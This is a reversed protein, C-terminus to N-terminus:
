NCISNTWNRCNKPVCSTGNQLELEPRCLQCQKTALSYDLCGTVFLLCQGGYVILQQQCQICRDGETTECGEIVVKRCNNNANDLVYGKKCSQCKYNSSNECNPEMCDRNSSLLYTKTCVLCSGNLDAQLCLDNVKICTGNLYYRDNCQVCKNDTYARCNADANAVAVCVGQNLSYNSVCGLCKTLQM